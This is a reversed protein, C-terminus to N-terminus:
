HLDLYGKLEKFSDQHFTGLNDMEPRFSVRSGFYTRGALRYEYRARVGYTTASKHTESSTELSVDRIWAPTSVWSRAEAADDYFAFLSLSARM